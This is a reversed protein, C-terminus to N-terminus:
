DAYLSLYKYALKQASYLVNVDVQHLQMQWWPLVEQQLFTTFARRNVKCDSDDSEPDDPDPPTPLLLHKLPPFCVFSVFFVILQLTLGIYNDERAHKFLANFELQFDLKLPNSLNPKFRERWFNECAQFYARREPCRPEHLFKYFLDRECRTREIVAFANKGPASSAGHGNVHSSSPM